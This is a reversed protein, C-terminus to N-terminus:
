FAPLTFIIETGKNSKNEASICGNHAEIIKRCNYLELSFGVKRFKNSCSLYEDFLSDIIEKKSSYGCDTISVNVINNKNEVQITIKSNEMSQESANIILNNIVKTMEKVDIDVDSINGNIILEVSQNKRELINSLKNCIEKILKVISYKQKQLENNDLENKYKMLLNDAMYNMFRCSNLLEKIIIRTNNELKGMKDKLLLELIRINARMPNKLDHTIIDIFTAKQIKNRIEQIIDLILVCYGVVKNKSNKLKCIHLNVPIDDFTKNDKIILKFFIHNNESNRFDLINKKIDNNLIFDIVDFLSSKKENNILKSNHFVIDFNENTIIIEDDCYKSIMSFAQKTLDSHTFNFNM